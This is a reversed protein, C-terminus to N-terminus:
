WPLKDLIDEISSSRGLLILIGSVLLINMYSNNFEVNNICLNTFMDFICLIDSNVILILFSIILFIVGLALLTKGPLKVENENKVTNPFVKYKLPINYFKCKERCEEAEKEPEPLYFHIM